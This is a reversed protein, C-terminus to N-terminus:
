KDDRRRFCTVAAAAGNSWRIKGQHEWIERGDAAYRAGSASRARPLHWTKSGTSVQAQDGGWAVSLTVGGGCDWKTQNIVSIKPPSNKNPDTCAAVLLVIALCYNFKIYRNDSM